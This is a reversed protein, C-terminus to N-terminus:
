SNTNYVTNVPIIVVVVPLVIFVGSTNSVASKHIVADDYSLHILTFSVHKLQTFLVSTDAHCTAMSVSHKFMLSVFATIPGIVQSCM